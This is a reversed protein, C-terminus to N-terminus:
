LYKRTKNKKTVVWRVSITSQGENVVEQFTKHVKWNEIEKMKANLIQFIQQIM